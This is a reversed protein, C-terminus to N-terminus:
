GKIKKAFKQWYNTEALLKNADAPHAFTNLYYGSSSSSSDKRLQKDPPSFSFSSGPDLFVPLSTRTDTNNVAGTAGETKDNAEVIALSAFDPLTLVEFSAASGSTSPSVEFQALGADMNVNEKPVSINPSRPPGRHQNSTDVSIEPVHHTLLESTSLQGSESSKRNSQSSKRGQSQDETTSPRRASGQSSGPRTPPQSLARVM